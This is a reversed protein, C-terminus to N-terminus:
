YVNAVADKLEEGIEEGMEEEITMLEQFRATIIDKPHIDEKRVKGGLVPEVHVTLGFVCFMTVLAADIGKLAYVYRPYLYTSYVAYAYQHACCFGLIGGNKIFMPSFFIEKISQYLPYLKPDITPFKLYM